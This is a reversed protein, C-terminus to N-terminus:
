RDNHRAEDLCEDCMGNNPGPTENGCEDYRVCKQSHNETDDEHKTHTTNVGLKKMWYSITSGTVDHGHEKLHEAVEGQTRGEYLDRLTDEDKWPEDLGDLTVQTASLCIGREDRKQRVPSEL